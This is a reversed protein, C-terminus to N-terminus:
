TEALAACKVCHAAHPLALLRNDNIAEGCHTCTGFTGAELRQLAANIESIEALIHNGMDELVEDEESETANEEWDPSHPERLTDDIQHVKDILEALRTDLQNKILQSNVM